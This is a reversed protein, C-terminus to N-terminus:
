LVSELGFDVVYDFGGTMAVVSNEEFSVYPVWTFKTDQHVVISKAYIAGYYTKVGQGVVVEANPAIITGAFNTQVFCRNSGLYVIKLRRSVDVPDNMTLTGNWQFDNEVFVVMNRDFSPIMVADRQVLLSGVTVPTNGLYVKSGSNFMYKCTASNPEYGPMGLFVVDGPNLVKQATEVFNGSVADDFYHAYKDDYKETQENETTSGHIIVGSSQMDVVGGTVISGHVQSRDRLFVSGASYIDGVKAGVGLEVGYLSGFTTGYSAIPCYKGDVDVCYARDNLLVWEKALLAVAFQNCGPAVGVPHRNGDFRECQHLNEEGSYALDEDSSYGFEQNDCFGDGDSDALNPSIVRDRPLTYVDGRYTRCAIEAKIEVGDLLSDGDTDDKRPDTLFRKKEDFDVVDDGDTDKFITSDGMRGNVGYQPIYYTFFMDTSYETDPIMDIADTIADILKDVANNIFFGVVDVGLFSINCYYRWENNGMNDTNLLHIYVDGNAMIKYGNLIMSHSNTLNSGAGGNAQSVGIVDGSEISRIITSLFPTGFYWGNGLYAGTGLFSGTQLNTQLMEQILYDLSEEPIGLAYNVALLTEFPGGGNFKNLEDTNKAGLVKMVHYLIEDTSINGGKLHNLMQAMTLWCRKQVSAHLKPEDSIKPFIKNYNEENLDDNWQTVIMRTDKMACFNEQSVLCPNDLKIDYLYSEKAYAKKLLDTNKHIEVEKTCVSTSPTVARIVGVVNSQEKYLLVTAVMSGSSGGFVADVISVGATEIVNKGVEGGLKKLKKTLSFRFRPLVASNVSRGSLTLEDIPVSYYEEGDVSEGDPVEVLPEVFWIYNGVGLAPIRVMTEDTFVSVATDGHVSDKLVLLHYYDAGVVPTWELSLSDLDGEEYQTYFPLNIMPLPSVGPYEWARYFKWNSARRSDLFDGESDMDLILKQGERLGQNFGKDRDAYVFSEESDWLNQAVARSAHQPKGGFAFYALMHSGCEVWFEGRNDRQVSAQGRWIKRGIEDITAKKTDVSAVVGREDVINLDSIGKEELIQLAVSDKRVEVLRVEPCSAVADSSSQILKKGNSFVDVSNTLSFFSSTPQSPDDFKTWVTWNKTHLGLSFGAENGLVGGPPVAVNPFRIILTESNEGNFRWYALGQPLYYVEPNAVMGSDQRVHYHFEMGRLTDRSNNVFKFRLTTISSSGIQEDLTYVSFDSAYLMSMVFFVCYFFRKM